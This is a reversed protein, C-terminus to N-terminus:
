KRCINGAKNFEYRRIYAHISMLAITSDHLSFSGALGQILFTNPFLSLSIDDYIKHYLNVGAPISEMEQISKIGILFDSLGM